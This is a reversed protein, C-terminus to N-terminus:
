PESENLVPIQNYPEEKEQLNSKASLISDDVVNEQIIPMAKLQIIQSEAGTVRFITDKKPKTNIGFKSLLELHAYGKGRKTDLNASKLLSPAKGAALGGFPKCSKKKKLQALTFRREPLREPEEEEISEEGESTM